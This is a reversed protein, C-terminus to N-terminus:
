RLARHPEETGDNSTARSSWRKAPQDPDPDALPGSATSLAM